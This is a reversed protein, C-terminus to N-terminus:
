RSGGFKRKPVGRPLAFTYNLGEVNAEMGSCQITLSAENSPFELAIDQAVQLGALPVFNGCKVTVLAAGAASTKKYELMAQDTTSFIIRELTSDQRRTFAEEGTKDHPASVFGEIGGPVEGRLFNTVEDYSIPIGLKMFNERTPAGEYITNDITFYFQAFSSVSQLKGVTIGLPGFLAIYLSDRKFLHGEFQVRQRTTKLAASLTGEAKLTKLRTARQEMAEALSSSSTRGAGSSTTKTSSSTTSCGQLLAESSALLLALVSLVIKANLKMTLTLRHM